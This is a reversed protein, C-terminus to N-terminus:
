KIAGVTGLKEDLLEALRKSKFKRRLFQSMTAPSVNAERAIDAQSIGREKLLLQIERRTM